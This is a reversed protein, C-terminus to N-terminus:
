SAAQPRRSRLMFFLREATVKASLHLNRGLTPVYFVERLLITSGDSKTKIVVEGKGIAFGKRLNEYVGTVQFAPIEEYSQLWDRRHTFPSICGSDMFWDDNKSPRVLMAAEPVVHDEIEEIFPM